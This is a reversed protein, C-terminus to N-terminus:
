WMKELGLFGGHLFVWGSRDLTTGGGLSFDLQNPALAVGGLVIGTYGLRFSWSDNIPRQATIGFEGLGAVSQGSASVRPRLQFPVGMVFPSDLVQQAQNADNLFVGGKALYQVSWNYHQRNYRAGIQVGYLYNNANIHYTSIGEDVQDNGTLSFTENLNLFRIGCLHDVTGNCACYSKICNLEVNHLTSTYNAAIADANLFNNSVLGLGGPISLNNNGLAVASANWGFLGFYSLELASCESCCNPRWGVLIRPGGGLGFGLDTTNLVAADPVPDTNLALVQSRGSGVRHWFLGDVQFYHTACCGASHTEVADYYIANDPPPLPAEVSVDVLRVPFPSSTEMLSPTPELMASELLRVPFDEASAERVVGAPAGLRMANSTEANAAFPLLSSAIVLIALTSFRM